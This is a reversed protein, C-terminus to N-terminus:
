INIIFFFLLLYKILNKKLIYLIKLRFSDADIKNYSELAVSSSTGMLTTKEKIEKLSKILNLYNVLIFKELFIVTQKNEWLIALSHILLFRLSLISRALFCISLNLILM